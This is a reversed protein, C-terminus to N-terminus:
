DNLVLAVIKLPEDKLNKMDHEEGRGTITVDGPEVVTEKGDCMAVGEGSLVMVMEWEGEPHPHMGITSGKELTIVTALNVKSPNLEPPCFFDFTAEGEGGRVNKRIEKPRDKCKIIM